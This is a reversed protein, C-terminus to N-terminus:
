IWGDFIIHHFYDHKTYIRWISIFAVALMKAFGGIENAFGCPRVAAGGGSLAAVRHVGLYFRLIEEVAHALFILGEAQEAVVDGAVVRHEAACESP